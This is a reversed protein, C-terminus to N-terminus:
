DIIGRRKHFFTESGHKFSAALSGQDLGTSDL